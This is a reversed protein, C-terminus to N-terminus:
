RERAESPYLGRQDLKERLAEVGRRQLAKVAGLRRNMTRAVEELTLGGFLRLLLVDRQAETLEDLVDRIEAEAAGRIVEAEVNVPDTVSAFVEPAFVAEPRRKRRRVDDVLRHHVMVFVWSRFGAEDGEFRHIDRVLQCFVEGCVGEPDPAGQARLYGLLTPALGDYLRTWAWEAGVRAADLVSEFALPQAPPTHGNLSTM